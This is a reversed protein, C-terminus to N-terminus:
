QYDRYFEWVEVESGDTLECLYVEELTSSDRNLTGGQQICFALAPNEMDIDQLKLVEISQKECAILALCCMSVMILRM